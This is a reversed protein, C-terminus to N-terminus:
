ASDENGNRLLKFTGQGTALLRGDADEITGECFVTQRGGGVERGRCILRGPPAAAVFNITMSLTISFRRQAPDPHSGAAMALILDM